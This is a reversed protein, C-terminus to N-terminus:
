SLSYALVFNWLVQAYPGACACGGRGQIGFLDNLLACVFNHHLFLGSIPHRILFSFIPLRSVAPNGLLVLNESNNWASLARRNFFLIRESTTAILENLVVVGFHRSLIGLLGKKLVILHYHLICLWWFLKPIVLIWSNDRDCCLRGHLTREAQWAIRGLTPCFTHHLGLFTQM